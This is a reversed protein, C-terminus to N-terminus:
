WRFVSFNPHFFEKFFVRLLYLNNLADTKDLSQLFCTCRAEVTNRHDIHGAADDAQDWYLEYDYKKFVMDKVVLLCSTSTIFFTIYLQRSTVHSCHIPLLRITSM